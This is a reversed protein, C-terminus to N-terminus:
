SEEPDPRAPLLALEPDADILAMEDPFLRAYRVPNRRAARKAPTLADKLGVAGYGERVVITLNEDSAIPGATVIKPEAYLDSYFRRLGIM